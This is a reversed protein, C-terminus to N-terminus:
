RAGSWNNIVMLLDVVDVIGDGGIPALDAGCFQPPAPCQGWANIIALVDLEGVLDDCNLDSTTSPILEYTTLSSAVIITNKQSDYAFASSPDPVIQIPRQRWSTGNWEWVDPLYGESGLGGVLVIVGRAGDYVLAHNRRPSPGIVERLIWSEGDWEWTDNLHQHTTTDHGGFLIVKQRREDYGLSTGQRPSPGRQSKLQWNEGNWAWTNSVNGNPMEIGTYAISEHRSHDFTIAYDNSSPGTTSVLTWVGKTWEWTRSGCNETANSASSLSVIVNRDVDVALAPTACSAMDVPGPLQNWTMGDWEWSQSEAHYTGFMGLLFMKKKEPLYVVRKFGNGPAGLHVLSWRDGQLQWQEHAVPYFDPAYGGFLVMSKTSKHYTMAAGNRSGPLTGAPSLSWEHGDWEWPGPDTSSLGGYAVVVGRDDDFAMVHAFKSPPGNSDLLQWTTGDWGWTEIQGPTSTTGGYLVTLGRWSDYVMAHHMRQGPGSANRMTWTEGDWEWTETSGSSGGYLVTVGRRQDFAMAHRERVSPGNATHAQWTEGDWEWTMDDPALWGGFLVVRHRLSDYAMAHRIRKGPEAGEHRHWRSGDWEWTENIGTQGGYMVSRDRTSDYCMALWKRPVPFNQQWTWCSQGHTNMCIMSDVALIAVAAMWKKSM